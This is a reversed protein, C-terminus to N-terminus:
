PWKGAAKAMAWDVDEAGWEDHCLRVLAEHCNGAAKAYGLQSCFNSSAGWEDHCLRMISEHGGEAAAAMAKDIDSAHWEDHYLRVIAEHGGSAAAAM